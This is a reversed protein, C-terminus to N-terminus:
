LAPVSDSEYLPDTVMQARRVWPSVAVEELDAHSQLHDIYLIGDLHDYEHQIGRALDGSAELTIPNLRHDFGEVQIAQARPVKLSMYGPISLCGERGEVVTDSRETITPNILILPPREVQPLITHLVFVRWAVGVQPAAIGIGGAQYMCALMEEILHRLQEHAIDPPVPQAKQRLILGPLQLTHLSGTVISLQHM